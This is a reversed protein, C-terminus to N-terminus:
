TFFARPNRYGYWYGLFGTSVCPITLQCMWGVWGGNDLTTSRVSSNLHPSRELVRVLVSVKSCTTQHSLRALFNCALNNAIQNDQSNKLKKEVSIMPEAMQRCTWLEPRTVSGFPLPWCQCSGGHRQSITQESCPHYSLIWFLCSSKLIQFEHLQIYIYVYIPLIRTDERVKWGKKLWFVDPLLLGVAWAMRLCIRLSAAALLPPPGPTRTRNRHISVAVQPHILYVGRSVLM